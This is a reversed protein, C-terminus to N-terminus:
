RRIIAYDCCLMKAITFIQSHDFSL